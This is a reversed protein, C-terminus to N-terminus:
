RFGHVSSDAIPEACGTTDPGSVVVKGNAYFAAVSSAGWTCRAPPSGYQASGGSATCAGVLVFPAVFAVVRLRSAIRM